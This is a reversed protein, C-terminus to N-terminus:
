VAERGAKQSEAIEKYVDCSELLEEHTGQAILRGRDMVLIRDANQITSIRQGVIVITADAATEKLKKRLQRDTKFDLASFSDDFLYIEPDRCVARSITLRQKQGGSFNTGGMEVKENYGAEKKRIFEDAQGTKAAKQIEELTARFRGNEGYGINEQITGAFLFATQPVYGLRNRLDKQRYKRVDMGDILVEGETVDYLRPILNLITTKGSGTGGIIAVTEGREIKFSIGSIAAEKSGPYNFSVNKFEISGNKQIPPADEGGDEITNKRSLVEKIRSTSNFFKPVMLIIMMINVLSGILLAIYSVFAAMDSYMAIKDNGATRGIMFAGSIYVAVSLAYLLASIVPSFAAMIVRVRTMVKSLENNVKAYEKEQKEQNNVSLIVRMGYIHERTLTAIRDRLRSSIKVVPIASAIIYVLLASLVVIAAIGLFTWEKRTGSIRAFVAVIMLPACILPQLSQNLFSQVDNVDNTCRTILSGTGFQAMDALSFGVVKEFLDSRIKSAAENGVVAIMYCSLVALLFAVTALILMLIVQKSVDQMGSGPTQIITSIDSMILPIYTETLVQGLLVLLALILLLRYKGNTHKLILYM